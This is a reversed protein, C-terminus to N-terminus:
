LTAELTCSAVTQFLADAMGPRSLTRCPRLPENM